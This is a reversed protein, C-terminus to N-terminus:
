IKRFTLFRRLVQVLSLIFSASTLVVAIIALILEKKEPEMGDSTQNRKSLFHASWTEKIYLDDFRLNKNYWVISKPKM